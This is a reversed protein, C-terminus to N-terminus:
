PALEPLDVVSAEVFAAAHPAVDDRVFVRGGCRVVRPLQPAALMDPKAGEVSPASTAPLLVEAVLRCAGASGVEVFLLAATM